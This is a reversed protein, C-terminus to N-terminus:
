QQLKCNQLICKTDTTLKNQGNMGKINKFIKIAATLLYMRELDTHPMSPMIFLM